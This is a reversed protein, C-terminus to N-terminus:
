KKSYDCDRELILEQGFVTERQPKWNISKSFEPEFCNIGIFKNTLNSYASKRKSAIDIIKAKFPELGDKEIEQFYHWSKEAIKDTLDEVTMSGGYPDIVKDLFSEEKLVLGINTSLRQAKDSTKGQLVIDYPKINLENVGGIVASLAETTLRLLNTNEDKASKNIIGTEATIYVDFQNIETYASIVNFWLKRFARIKSIEFFYLNGIVFNFRLMKQIKDITIGKELLEFLRNHGEHLAFAIQQSINGGAKQVEGADILVSPLNEIYHNKFEELGLIAINANKNKELLESLWNLQNETKYYFTTSIYEFGIEHIVQNFDSENDIEQLHIVLADAGKMLLDLAKQNMKKAEEPLIENVILWNNNNKSSGRKTNQQHPLEHVVQDTEWHKFSSYTIEEIDDSHILASEITQGKLDKILKQKFDESKTPKFEEFNLTM